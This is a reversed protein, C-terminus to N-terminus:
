ALRTQAAEKIASPDPMSAPRAVMRHGLALDLGAMARHFVQRLQLREAVRPNDLALNASEHV